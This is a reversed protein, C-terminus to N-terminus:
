LPKIFSLNFGNKIYVTCFAKPIVFLCYFQIFMWFHDSLQTM